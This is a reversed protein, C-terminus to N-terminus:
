SLIQIKFVCRKGGRLVSEVLEVKVPKSFITEYMETQWGLSCDCFYPPTKEKDVFICTCDTRESSTITIIGNEKDYEATEKWRALVENWFGEPNGKYRTPWGGLNACQRGMSMLIKLRTPEDVTEGMTELMRTFVKKVWNQKRQLEKVAPHEPEKQKKEATQGRALQALFSLGACGCLGAGCGMKLFEKRNM